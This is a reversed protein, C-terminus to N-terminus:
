GNGAPAKKYIFSHIYNDTEFDWLSVFFFFHELNLPLRIRDLKAKVNLFYTLDEQLTDLPIIKVGSLDEMAHRASEYDQFELLEKNTESYKVFYINKVTDYKLTHRIELMSVTKNFWFPRKESLEINFYFTTPIGAMIAEDMKKTFCDTVKFYVLLNNENTSLLFDVIKAKMGQSSLPIALVLILGICILILASYKKLVTKDIM